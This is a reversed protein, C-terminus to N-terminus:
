ASDYVIHIIVRYQFVVFHKLFFFIVFYSRWTSLFFLYICCLSKKIYFFTVSENFKKKKTPFMVQSLQTRHKEVTDYKHRLSELLHRWHSHSERVTISLLTTMLNLPSSSHFTTSVIIEKAKPALAMERLDWFCSLFFFFCREFARVFCDRLKALALAEVKMYIYYISIYCPSSMETQLTMVLARTRALQWIVWFSVSHISYSYVFFAIQSQLAM